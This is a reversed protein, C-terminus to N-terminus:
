PKLPCPPRKLRCKALLILAAVVVGTLNAAIDLNSIQRDPALRQLEEAGVGFAAMVGLVLFLGERTKAAQALGLTLTLLFSFHLIKDLHPVGLSNLGPLGMWDSVSGPMLMGALGSILVLLLLKGQPVQM